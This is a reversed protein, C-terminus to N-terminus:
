AIALLVLFQLDINLVCVARKFVIGVRTTLYYAICLMCYRTYVRSIYPVPVSTGQGRGSVSRGQGEELGKMIEDYFFQGYLYCVRIIEFCFTRFDKFYVRDSGIYMYVGRGDNIAINYIRYTRPLPGAHGGESGDLIKDYFM